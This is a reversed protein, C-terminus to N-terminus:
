RYDNGLSLTPRSHARCYARWLISWVLSRYLGLWNMMLLCHGVTLHLIIFLHYAYSVRLRTITSLIPSAITRGFRSRGILVIWIRNGSDLYDNRVDSLLVLPPLNHKLPQVHVLNAHGDVNQWCSSIRADCCGVTYLSTPQGICCCCCCSHDTGSSASSM